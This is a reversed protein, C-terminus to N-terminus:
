ASVLSVNTWHNFKDAMCCLCTDDLGDACRAPSSACGAMGERTNLRRPTSRLFQLLKEDTQKFSDALVARLEVPCCLGSVDREAHWDVCSFPIRRKDLTLQYAMYPVADAEYSRGVQCLVNKAMRTTTSPM